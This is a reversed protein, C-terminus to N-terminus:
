ENIILWTPNRGGGYTLQRQNAGDAGIVFIEAPHFPRPSEFLVSTWDPSYLLRKSDRSFNLKQVSAEFVDVNVVILGGAAACTFRAGDAHWIAYSGHESVWRENTGDAEVVYMGDFWAYVIRSGDPSWVPSHGLNTLRLQNGGDADVLYLGSPTAYALRSGDPSWVPISSTVDAIEQQNSGDAEVVHLAGPTVYALRTSDPSWASHQVNRTSPTSTVRVRNAGDTDAIYLGGFGRYAIKSSDPSWIPTFEGSFPSADTTLRRLNSGDPNQLFIKFSRDVKGTFAIASGNPAWAAVDANWYVNNTLQVEDAGDAGVIFIGGGRSFAITGDPSWAPNEPDQQTLLSYGTVRQPNAGEIDVLQIANGLAFVIQTGDPSWDVGKDGSYRISLQKEQTGDANVVSIGSDNEFRIKTGDPSWVPRQDETFNFTLREQHSGDAAMLYVEGHLTFAIQDGGPSWNPAGAHWHTEDNNTLRQEGSGDAEVVLIEANRFRSSTFAIRTGDPSWVPDVDLWYPDYSLFDDSFDEGTLQRENAGDEDMVFLSSSSSGFTNTPTVVQGQRTFVIGTGDPSWVPGYDDHEHDTLQEVNSGDADMAFIDLNGNRDSTFAVRAGDPSWAPTGNVNNKTIQRPTKADPNMVVVGLDSSFAIREGGPEWSPRFEQPGLYRGYRRDTLRRQNLGYADMLFITHGGVGDHRSFAIRSSDESWAPDTDGHPNDTLQKINGGDAEMAFIGVPRVERDFSHPDDTHHRIFAIRTGDTSWVPRSDLYNDSNGSLQEINSGDAEMVYIKDKHSYAVQTGDPSWALDHGWIDSNIQDLNSGDKDITYITGNFIFSIHTGDPSWIPYKGYQDTLERQNAGDGDIVYMRGYLTYVIQEGDPSWAVHDIGYDSTLQKRNAGDVKVVHLSADSAVAIQSGDPSWAPAHPTATDSLLTFTNGPDAVFFNATDGLAMRTEGGHRSGIGWYNATHQRTYAIRITPKQVGPPLPILKLARALFTAMEARTVPQDPCYKPPNISCGRTINAQALANISELQSNGATDVFGAEPGPHLFFARTLFTAMQERTVPQDPCYERPTTSCGKTVGLEALRDVFPAWWENADVDTFGSPKVVVPDTGDLSRVLWVAMVWREIPDKPCILGEGCETGALIGRVALADIAPEHVGGDDDNFENAAVVGFGLLCLLAVWGIVWGIDRKQLLRGVLVKM